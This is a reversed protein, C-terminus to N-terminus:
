VTSEKYTEAAYNNLIKSMRSNTEKKKIYKFVRNKINSDLVRRHFVGKKNFLCFTKTKTTM